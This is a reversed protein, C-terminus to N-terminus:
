NFRINLNGLAIYLFNLCLGEAVLVGTSVQSPISPCTPILYFERARSINYYGYPNKGGPFFSFNLMAYGPIDSGSIFPGGMRFPTYSDYFRIPFGGTNQVLDITQLTVQLDTMIDFSPYFTYTTGSSSSSPPNTLSAGATQNTQLEVYQEQKFQKVDFGQFQDWLVPDLVYTLDQVGVFVYEVAWKFTSLQIRQGNQSINQSYSLHLRTLAFSARNIYLDHISQDIFINNIYLSASAFFNSTNVTSGLADLDVRTYQTTAVDRYIATPPAAGGASTGTLEHLTQRLFIPSETYIVSSAPGIISKIERPAGQIQLIPISSSPSECMDFKYPYLLNLAPQVAKPTQPGNLIAIQQRAEYGPESNGLQDAYGPVPVEQGICRLYASKKQLMVRSNLYFTDTNVTYTDIPAASVNFEHQIFLRHALNNAFYVYNSVTDGTTYTQGTSDVYQGTTFSLNTSSGGVGTALSANTRTAAPDYPYDATPLTTVAPLTVDSAVLPNTVINLFADWLFEGMNGISYTVTGGWNLNGSSQNVKLYQSAVPVYPKYANRPIITHTAEIDAITPLAKVGTAGEAQRRLTINNINQLLRGKMMVLADFNGTNNALIFSGLLSM